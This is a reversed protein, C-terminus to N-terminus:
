SWDGRLDTKAVSGEADGQRALPSVGPPDSGPQLGGQVSQVVGSVIGEVVDNRCLPTVSDRTSTQPISSRPRVAPTARSCRGMDTREKPAACPKATPRASSRGHRPRGGASSCPTLPKQAVFDFPVYDDSRLWTTLALEARSRRKQATPYSVGLIAAADALPVDGLRTHGILEADAASVIGHRVARDLVLDPHGWPQPPAASVPDTGVGARQATDHRLHRSAGNHALWTLRSAVRARDPETRAVAELFAVLMEAEIDDSKNPFSRIMPWAARRLGPLLIGALGIAATGGHARSGAALANIAADRVEYSTSPHLLMTRLEDLAITRNPLGAIATGDLSLPDPGSVLLDFTKELTDFPTNRLTRRPAM